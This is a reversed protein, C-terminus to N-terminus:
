KNSNLFTKINRVCPLFKDLLKYSDLLSVGLYLGLSGGIQALVGLGSYLKHSESVEVTPDFMIKVGNYGYPSLTRGIHFTMYYTNLRIIVQCDQLLHQAQHLSGRM